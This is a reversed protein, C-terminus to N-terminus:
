LGASLIKLDNAIADRHTGFPWEVVIHGTADIVYTIASHTVEVMGDPKSTVSSQVGFPEKAANLEDTSNARLAHMGPLFSAIYDNLKEPTDRAFDVTVFVTDIKDAITRGVKAYALKLDALTTPCVDPCNTYGFYAVLLRGPSAVMARTPATAGNTVDPLTVTSVDIPDPRTLGNLKGSGDSSSGGGCASLMTAAVLVTCAIATGIVAPRPRPRVSGSQQNINILNPSVDDTDGQM